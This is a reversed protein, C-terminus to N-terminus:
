ETVFFTYEYIDEFYLKEKKLEKYPWLPVFSNLSKPHDLPAM